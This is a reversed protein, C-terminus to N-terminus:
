KWAVGGDVRHPNDQAAYASTPGRLLRESVGPGGVNGTMLGGSHSELVGLQRGRTRGLNVNGIGSSEEGASSTVHEHNDARGTVSSVAVAWGTCLEGLLASELLCFSAILERLLSSASMGVPLVAIPLALAGGFSHRIPTGGLCGMMLANEHSVRWRDAAALLRMM